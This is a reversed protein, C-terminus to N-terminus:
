VRANVCIGFGLHAPRSVTEHRVEEDPTQHRVAAQFGGQVLGQSEVDGFQCIGFLVEFLGAGVDGYRQEIQDSLQNPTNKKRATPVKTKNQCEVLARERLEQKVVLKTDNQLFPLV